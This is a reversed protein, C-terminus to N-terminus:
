ETVEEVRREDHVARIHGHWDDPILADIQDETGGRAEAVALLGITELPTLKDRESRWDYLGKLQVSANLMRVFHSDLELTIKVRKQVPSGGKIREDPALLEGCHVCARWGGGWTMYTNKEGCTPCIM